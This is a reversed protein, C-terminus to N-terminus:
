TCGGFMGIFMAQGSLKLVTNLVLFQPRRGDSDPKIIKETTRPVNVKNPPSGIKVSTGAAEGAVFAGCPLGAVKNGADVFTEEAPMVLLM